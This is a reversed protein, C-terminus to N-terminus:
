AAATRLGLVDGLLRSLMLGMFFTFGLLIAVGWAATRPRRSRSSSVSRSRWSCRHLRDVPQRLLVHVEDARWAVRRAVTPVLSLALLTYTNRLVRNQAPALTTPSTPAMMPTQSQM